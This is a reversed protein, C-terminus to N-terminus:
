YINEKDEYACVICKWLSARTACDQVRQLGSVRYLLTNMWGIRQFDQPKSRTWVSYAHSLRTWSDEATPTPSAHERNALNLPQVCVWLTQTKVWTHKPICADGQDDTRKFYFDARERFENINPLTMAM